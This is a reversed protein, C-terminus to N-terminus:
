LLEKLTEAIEAPAATHRLVTAYNGEPDMVYIATSHDMSYDDGEGVRKYYVRYAKATAAVQEATGTLGVIRPDFAAVYDKMMAPTDREPDISIFIPQVRDADAGLERLAAAINALGTPCADPCYTFGFYVVMWKGRYAQDTVAQGDGDVLAFPGGIAPVGLNVAAEGDSRYWGVGVLLGLFLVVSLGAIFIYRLKMFAEAAVARGPAAGRRFPIVPHAPM